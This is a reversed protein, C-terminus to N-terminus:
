LLQSFLGALEPTSEKRRPRGRNPTWPPLDDREDLGGTDHAGTGRGSRYLPDEYCHVIKFNGEMDEVLASCSEVWDGCNMYEIGRLHKIEARHIHGCIIGDVKNKWALQVMAEEYDGIYQMASKAKMKLYASLSWYGFGLRRGVKNVCLNLNLIVDYLRSGVRELLRNFQTLGDFQHGHLVLYRRGDLGVHVVREALRVKGFQMGVFDALFEDHNGHLLTVRTQKRDKRLLKQILINYNGDWHWSRKLEWGDIFDGVIYISESENERLFRLLAEVQSHRTGLHVDSIWIARYNM